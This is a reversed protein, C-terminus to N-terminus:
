RAVAGLRALEDSMWGAGEAKSVLVHDAGLERLEDAEVPDMAHVAVAVGLARCRHVLLRNTDEIQLASVALKARELDLEQLVAGVNVDGVLAGAPLGALKGPDTDVAVVTEGREALARVLRRGLANMGVVVVHGRRGETGPDEPGRRGFPRLMGAARLRGHIRGGLPAVAASVGITLLGVAGVVSFLEGGVLGAGAAAATLVFAFESIQGLTLGARLSTRDTEGLGGLLATVILPKGVLALGSLVLVAAGHRAAAGLDLGAGLSM